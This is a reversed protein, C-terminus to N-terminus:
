ASEGGARKMREIRDVIIRPPEVKPADPHLLWTCAWHTPSIQFTPPEREFDIQMAYRNRAAFADGEPPYIMNPPTGPIAELKEKTDLDPMSSLLAWTYPHRPDYFVDDATGYEVIKGAYMVAIDDAMNAVVGLDHTIFIVSLNRQEKLKNILELIQAQITVDLATTPEDCILIDPNAALAIAIVIRQRMGGSFEFPYQNYRIRPEPIGVEEMLEIAKERAMSRTIRYVKESAKQKLYDIIEVSRATLDVSEAKAVTQEYHAIMSEVCSLINERLESLDYVTKPVVKWDVTKGRAILRERRRTQREFRAEERPNKKVADCYRDIADTLAVRFTYAQSDKVIEMPDISAEVRSAADAAMKHASSRVIEGSAFAERTKKLEDIVAKKKELSARFSREVGQREMDLFELMFNEDLYTLASENLEEVGTAHLDATPNKMRYYGIRFFDPEPADCLTRLLAETRRVAECAEEGVQADKGGHVSGAAARVERVLADIADDSGHSFFENKVGPLKDSLAKLRAKADLKQKKSVLFLFDEAASILGEAASRATNYDNEMKTGEANFDDFTKTMARVREASGAGLAATSNERILALVRDFEKKASQRNGRDKLLMAETIQRGIKVIPNLSSLPDQFIMSIRNGRISCM